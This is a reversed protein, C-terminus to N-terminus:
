SAYNSRAWSILRALLMGGATVDHDAVFPGFLDFEEELGSLVGVVHNDALSSAFMPGGSWGKGAFVDTELEKGDGDNDVDRVWLNGQVTMVKGNLTDQPYGVSTWPFNYYLSDGSSARYGMWGIRDGIADNLRCVAYDRGTVDDTSPVGYCETVWAHGFPRPNRRDQGNFAPIFEMGWRNDTWSPICHSATLLIRPGVLTGTCYHGTSHMSTDYLNVTGITRWPYTVDGPITTRSRLNSSTGNLGRKILEDLSRNKIVQVKPQTSVAVGEPIHHLLSVTGNQDPKPMINATLKVLETVKFTRLKTLQVGPCVSSDQTGANAIGALLITFLIGIYM